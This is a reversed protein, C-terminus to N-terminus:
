KWRLSQRIGTYILGLSRGILFVLFFSIADSVKAFITRILPMAIDALELFLSFYYRWGTLARLEKTRRVPVSIYGIVVYRLPSLVSGSKRLTLKKWWSFKENQRQGSEEIFQSQLTCLDFRDEYMSVVAEMNQHLWQNLAVENRLRHKCDGDALTIVLDELIAVGHLTFLSYDYCCGERLFGFTLFCMFDAYLDEKGAKRINQLITNNGKLKEVMLSLLAKDPQGKKLCLEKELWAMCVPQNTKQIIESFVTLWDDMCASVSSGLINDVEQKLWQFSAWLLRLRPGDAVAYLSLPRKANDQEFKIVTDGVNDEHEIANLSDVLKGEVINWALKLNFDEDNKTASGSINTDEPLAHDNLINKWSSLQMIKCSGSSCKRQMQIYSNKTISCRKQVSYERACIHILFHEFLGALLDVEDAILLWRGGDDVAAWRRLGEVAVTLRQGGGCTGDM